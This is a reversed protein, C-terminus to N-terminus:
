FVQGQQKGQPHVGFVPGRAIGPFFELEREGKIEDVKGMQYEVFKSGYYGGACIGLFSGLCKLNLINIFLNKSTYVEM